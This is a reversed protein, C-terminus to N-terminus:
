SKFLQTLKNGYQEWSYDEVYKRINTDIKFAEEIYESVKEVPDNIPDFLYGNEGPKIIDPCFGTNSAVPVINSLMAELLPVPGGELFSPSCFVDMQRYKEPYEEYDLDDFYTFNPLENLINFKPYEGWGRGILIFNLHPMKTVLNFVLEPNKREYYACCFGVTKNGRKVKPQFFGPNSALHFVEIKTEEIGIEVLQRKVDKNLCVIKYAKKLTYLAHSKSYFKNWEPHTFMVICKRDKLFPNYRLAKAFYKQHLFFYGPADPLNKFKPSFVAESDMLFNRSLRMAKAGLIWDRTGEHTVFLYNDSEKSKRFFSTVKQVLYKWKFEFLDKLDQKKLLSFM